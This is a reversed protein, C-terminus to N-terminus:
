ENIDELIGIIRDHEKKIGDKLGKDYAHRYLESQQTATAFREGIDFGAEKYM